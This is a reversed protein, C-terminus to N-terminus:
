VNINIDAFTSYWIDAYAPFFDLRVMDIQFMETSVELM